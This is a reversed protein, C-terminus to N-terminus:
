PLVAGPLSQIWTEAIGAPEQLHHDIDVTAAYRLTLTGTWEARLRLYRGRTVPNVDEQARLSPQMSLQESVIRQRASRAAQVNFIFDAGPNQVLYSLEVEYSMRTATSPHM